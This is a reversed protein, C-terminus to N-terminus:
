LPAEPQFVAAWPTNLETRTQPTEAFGMQAVPQAGTETAAAGGGIGLLEQDHRQCPQTTCAVSTNHPHEAELM